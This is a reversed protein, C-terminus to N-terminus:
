QVASQNAPPTKENRLMDENFANPLGSKFEEIEAQLLEPLSVLCQYYPRKHAANRMNFQKPASASHVLASKNAVKTANRGWECDRRTTFRLFRLSKKM